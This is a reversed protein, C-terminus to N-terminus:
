AQGSALYWRYTARVGEELSTQPHWGLARLKDGNMLKRAIGDPKSLDNVIAGDFGIVRAVIRAIDIIPLDEGSGVNIQEQASYFKMVHVLADACDDVYLLERRPTGSGWMVVEKRENLKAEHFKRILAPLFHSTAPDFNDGPGYLNSPMASVFDCGHQRRYAQCLKIGTIKAIAYGEHTPELPGTLLADEQIPQAALKPYVTSSGLFVLKQVGTQYAADILNAEIALNQHLFDAPHTENALIGGVKAAAIFVANPRQAAMWREVDEQRRLDLENRTAVIINCEESLLRRVLASGVMGRHGAVFVSKGALAFAASMNKAALGQEHAPGTM